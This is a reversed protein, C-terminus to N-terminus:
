PHCYLLYAEICAPIDNPRQTQKLRIFVPLMRHLGMCCTLRWVVQDPGAEVGKGQYFLFCAHKIWVFVLPPVSDPEHLVKVVFACSITFVWNDSDDCCSSTKLSVLRRWHRLSYSVNFRTSLCSCTWIKSLAGTVKVMLDIHKFCVPKQICERRLSPSLINVTYHCHNHGM